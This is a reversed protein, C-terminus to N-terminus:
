ASDGAESAWRLKDKFDAQTKQAYLAGGLLAQAGLIVAATVAVSAVWRPLSWRAVQRDPNQLM